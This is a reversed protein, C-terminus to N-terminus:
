PANYEEKHERIHAPLMEISIGDVGAAGKNAKVKRYARNMNARECIQEM